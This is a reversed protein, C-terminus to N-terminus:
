YKMLYIQSGSKIPGQFSVKYQGADNGVVSYPIFHVDARDLQLEGKRPLLCTAKNEVRKNKSTLFVKM